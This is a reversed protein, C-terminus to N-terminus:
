GAMLQCIFRSIILPQYKNNNKDKNNPSKVLILYSSVMFTFDGYIIYYYLIQGQLLLFLHFMFQLPM